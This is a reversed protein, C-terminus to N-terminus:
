YIAGLRPRKVVEELKEVLDLDVREGNVTIIGGELRTSVFDYYILGAVDRKNFVLDMGFGDEHWWLDRRKRNEEVIEGFVSEIGAKRVLNKRIEIINRKEEENKVGVTENGKEGKNKLVRRKGWGEKEKNEERKRILDGLRENKM